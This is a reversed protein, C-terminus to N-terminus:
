KLNKKFVAQVKQYNTTPILLVWNKDPLCKYVTSHSLTTFNSYDYIINDCCIKSLITGYIKVACAIFNIEHQFM